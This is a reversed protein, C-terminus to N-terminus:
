ESNLMLSEAILIAIKKKLRLPLGNDVKKKIRKSRAQNLASAVDAALINKRHLLLELLIGEQPTIRKSSEGLRLELLDPLFYVMLEGVKMVEEALRDDVTAPEGLQLGKLKRTQVIKDADLSVRQRKLVDNLKRRINAVINKLHLDSAKKLEPYKSYQRFSEPFLHEFIEELTVLQFLHDFLLELLQANQGKFLVEEYKIIFSVENPSKKYIYVNECLCFAKEIEEKDRQFYAESGINLYERETM